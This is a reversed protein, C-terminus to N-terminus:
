DHIRFARIAKVALYVACCASYSIIWGSGINPMEGTSVQAIEYRVAVVLAAALLLWGEISGRLTKRRAKPSLHESALQRGLAILSLLFIGGFAFLFFRLLM